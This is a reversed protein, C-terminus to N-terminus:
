FLIHVGAIFLIYSTTGRRAKIAIKNRDNADYNKLNFHLLNECNNGGSYTVVTGDAYSRLIYDDENSVRELIFYYNDLRSYDISTKKELVGKEFNAYLYHGSNSKIMTPSSVVGDVNLRDGQICIIGRNSSTYNGNTGYANIYVYYTGESTVNITASTNTGINKYNMPVGDTGCWVVDYYQANSVPQFIVKISEGECYLEPTQNTINPTANSWNPRIYCDIVATPFNNSTCYSQNAFNQNIVTITSGSVGTVIGVHGASGTEYYGYKYNPKWVAIDGAQPNSYVRSWGSPFTNYRYAEANGGPTTVGLYQYYYAILDVCQNGYKGDYDLGKGIQSNAWSVAESQSHNAAEVQTVNNFEPIRIFILSMALVLIIIREMFKKM